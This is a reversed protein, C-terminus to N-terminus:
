MYDYMQVASSAIKPPAIIGDTAWTGKNTDDDDDIYDNLNHIRHGM